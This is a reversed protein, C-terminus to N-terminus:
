SYWLITCLLYIVPPIPNETDSIHLELHEETNLSNQRKKDLLRQPIEDDEDDSEESEYDENVLTCWYKWKIKKIIRDGHVKPIIYGAWALGHLRINVVFVFCFGRIEREREWNKQTLGIGCNYAEGDVLGSPHECQIYRNFCALCM